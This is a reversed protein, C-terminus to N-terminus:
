RLERLAAEISRLARAIGAGAAAATRRSRGRLDAALDGRAARGRAQDLRV